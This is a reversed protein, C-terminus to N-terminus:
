STPAFTSRSLRFYPKMSIDAETDLLGLWAMYRVMTAPTAQLPPLNEKACFALFNACPATM